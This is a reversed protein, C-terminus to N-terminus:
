RHDVGDKRIPVFLFRSANRRSRRYVLREIAVPRPVSRPDVALAPLNEVCAFAIEHGHRISIRQGDRPGGILEVLESM